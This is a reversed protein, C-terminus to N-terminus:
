ASILTRIAPLKYLHVVVVPFVGGVSRDFYLLENKVHRSKLAETSVESPLASAAAVRAGKSDLV